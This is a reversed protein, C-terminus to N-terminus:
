SLPRVLGGAEMAARTISFERRLEAETWEFFMAGMDDFGGWPIPFDRNILTGEELWKKRCWWVWM